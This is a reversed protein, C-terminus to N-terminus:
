EIFDEVQNQCVAMRGLLDNYNITERSQWIPLEDNQGVKIQAITM